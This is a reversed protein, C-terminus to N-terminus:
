SWLTRRRQVSQGLYRGPGSMCARAARPRNNLGFSERLINPAQVRRPRAMTASRQARDSDKVRARLRAARASLAEAPATDRREPVTFIAEAQRERTRAAGIQATQLHGGMGGPGDNGPAPEAIQDYEM